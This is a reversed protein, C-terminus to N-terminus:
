ERKERKPKTGKLLKRAESSAKRKMSKEKKQANLAEKLDRKEQERVVLEPNTLFVNRRRSIILQDATKYSPRIKANDFDSDFLEGQKRILKILKPLAKFVHTEEETSIKGKCNALM